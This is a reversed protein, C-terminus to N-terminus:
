NPSPREVRDIVFVPAPGTGASLKLGLQEQLATFLSPVETAENTNVEEEPAYQLEINFLGTLGTEDIATRGALQSLSGNALANMTIGHATVSLTRGTKKRTETGCAETDTPLCSDPSLRQMKIGGKATTLFYVPGQESAEHFQLHFREQLLTQLMPGRMVPQSPDGKATSSLDYRDSSAWARAGRLKLINPTYSVGNAFYGYAM